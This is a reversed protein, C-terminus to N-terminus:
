NCGPKRDSLVFRERLISEQSMRSCTVLVSFSMTGAEFIHLRTSSFVLAQIPNSSGSRRGIILSQEGHGLRHTFYKGAGANEIVSRAAEDVESATAGDRVARLGESQATLVM